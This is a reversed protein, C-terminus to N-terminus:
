KRKLGADERGLEYARILLSVVDELEGKDYDIAWEFLYTHAWEEFQKHRDM